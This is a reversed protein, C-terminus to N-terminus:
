STISGRDRPNQNGGAFDKPLVGFQKLFCKAFYSPTNFGVMYCIENVKYKQEALLSAAKRLRMEKIFNNPTQGCAEKTREFLVSRSMNMQEALDDVTFDMDPIRVSVIESLQQLFLEDGKGQVTSRLTYYPRKSFSEWIIKRKDLINNIQTILYEIEVPKELFIDAGKGIGNVKLSLDDSSSLLIVPIHCFREENRLVGCLDTGIEADSIILDIREGNDLTARAEGASAATKIDLYHRSLALSLFERMQPDQDIVMISIGRRKPANQEQLVTGSSSGRAEKEIEAAIDRYEGRMPMPAEGVDTRLGEISNHLFDLIEHTIIHLKNSSNKIIAANKRARESLGKEALIEDVPGNLLMVPTRIGKAIDTFLELETELRVKNRDRLIREAKNAKREKRYEALTKAFVLILSLLACCYAVIALTCNYWYPRVKIVTPMGKSWVGDNNCGSVIITHEGRDLGTLIIENGKYDYENWDGDDIKWRYRNKHPAMYSLVSFRLKLPSHGTRLDVRGTKRANSLLAESENDNGDYELESLYLRPSTINTQIEDPRFHSFGGNTGLFITGDSTMIGSNFNLAKASMGDGTGFLKAKLTQTNYRILGTNSSLWLNNNEPIINYVTQDFSLVGECAAHSVDGSQPNYSMLGNGATGIWIVNGVIEMTLIKDPIKGKASPKVITGTKPSYRMLGNNISAFWINGQADARIDIIDSNLGLDLVKRIREGEKISIGTKTGIWIRGNIDKYLAYVSGAGSGDDNLDPWHRTKGNRTDLLYLGKSYTGVYLLGDSDKLLAHINLNPNNRDVIREQCVGSNMDYLFLGGDDTGIWLKRDRDECFKSIVRGKSGTKDTMSYNFLSLSTNTYNVGGFYTAVWIGGENDKIIDYIFNDTISQPTNPEYRINECIGTRTDFNVIGNDCGYSIVGPDVETVTHIRGTYLKTGNDAALRYNSFTGNGKHYRFLGNEWGGIWINGQYDECMSTAANCEVKGTEDYIHIRSFAAKDEDYLYLYESANICWIKGSEDCLVATIYDSDIGCRNDPDKSFRVLTGSKIDLRLLGQGLTAIWLREKKDIDMSKVFISSSRDKNVGPLSGSSFIERFSEENKDFAYLGNGTGVYLTGSRDEELAYVINNGLSLTDSPNGRWTKLSFGDFRTLGDNTGFWMLGDRDQFLKFITNSSMGNEVGYHRFKHSQANLTPTGLITLLVTIAALRKRSM